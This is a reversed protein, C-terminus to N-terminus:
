GLWPKGNTWCVMTARPDRLTVAASNRQLRLAWARPHTLACPWRTAVRMAAAPDWGLNGAGLFGFVSLRYNITVVIVSANSALVLHTGNPSFASGEQVACRGSLLCM